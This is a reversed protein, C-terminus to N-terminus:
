RSTYSTNLFAKFEKELLGQQKKSMPKGPKSELSDFIIAKVESVAEQFLNYKSLLTVAMAVAYIRIDSVNLRFGNIDALTVLSAVAIRKNANPFPHNEILFCFMLSAIEAFAEKGENNRVRQFPSKLSSELKNLDCQSFPPVPEDFDKKQQLIEIVGVISDFTLGIM